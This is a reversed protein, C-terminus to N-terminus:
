PKSVVTGGEKEEPRYLYTIVEESKKRGSDSWAIRTLVSFLGDEEKGVVEIDRTWQFGPEGSFDGSDSGAEIKEELQLPHELEVRGLLHRATEYNKAQRVVGLCRSTTAILVTLGMGLITLALMVEILTLGSYHLTPAM